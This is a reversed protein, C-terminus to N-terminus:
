SPGERLEDFLRKASMAANAAESILQLVAGEDRKGEDVLPVAAAAAAIASYAATFAELVVEREARYAALRERAEAETDAEAVIQQQHSEDWAVFTNRAANTTTLAVSVSKSAKESFSGGCGVALALLLALAGHIPKRQMM